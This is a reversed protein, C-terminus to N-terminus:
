WSINRSDWEVVSENSATFTWFCRTTTKSLFNVKTRWRSSFVLPMSRMLLSRLNKGLSESSVM